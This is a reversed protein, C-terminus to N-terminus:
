CNENCRKLNIGLGWHNELGLVVGCKEATPICKEISDIVWKFGEDESYGDLVSEVGKIIWSFM